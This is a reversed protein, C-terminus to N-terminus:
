RLFYDLGCVINIKRQVKVAIIRPYHVINYFPSSLLNYSQFYDLFAYPLIDTTDRSIQPIIWESRYCCVEFPCTIPLVTTLQLPVTWTCWFYNCFSQAIFVAVHRFLKIEAKGKKVEELSYDAAHIFVVLSPHLFSKIFGFCIKM